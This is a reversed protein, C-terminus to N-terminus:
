LELMQAVNLTFGILVDEGSLMETFPKTELERDPRYVTTIQLQSDVLRGLRVGNKIWKAMKEQLEKLSNSESRVEIVFDPCVHAFKKLEEPLVSM